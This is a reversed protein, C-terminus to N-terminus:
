GTPITKAQGHAAKHAALGQRAAMAARRQQHLARVKASRALSVHAHAEETALELQVIAAEAQVVPLKAEVAALRLSTVTRRATESESLVEKLERSKRKHSARRWKEDRIVGAILEQKRREIRELHVADPHVVVQRRWGVRGLKFARWALLIM